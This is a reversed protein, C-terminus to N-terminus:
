PIIVMCFGRDMKLVARSDEINATALIIDLQIRAWLMRCYVARVHTVIRLYRPHLPAVYLGSYSAIDNQPMNSTDSM